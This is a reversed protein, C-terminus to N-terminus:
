TNNELLIVKGYTIKWDLEDTLEVDKVELLRYRLFKKKLCLVLIVHNLATKIEEYVGKGIHKMYESVVVIDSNKVAELYPKMKSKNDWKIDMNPNWVESFKRKLFRFERKERKTNYIKLSHAYYVKKNQKIM